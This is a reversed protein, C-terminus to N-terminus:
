PQEEEYVFQQSKMFDGVEGDAQHVSIFTPNTPLDGSRTPATTRQMKSAEQSMMMSKKIEQELQQETQREAADLGGLDEIRQSQETIEYLPM